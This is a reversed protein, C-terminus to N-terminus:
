KILGLLENVIIAAQIVVLHELWFHTKQLWVKQTKHVNLPKHIIFTAVFLVVFLVISYIM